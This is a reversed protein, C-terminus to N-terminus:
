SENNDSFVFTDPTQDIFVTDTTTVYGRERAAAETVTRQAQIFEAELRSIASNTRAIEREIEQRMVVHWVSASLFYIYLFFVFLLAAVALFLRQRQIHYPTIHTNM